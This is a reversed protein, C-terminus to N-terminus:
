QLQSIDHEVMEKVLESFSIRPSWGLKEKAKSTDGLLCDIEAPYSTSPHVEVYDEWNTISICNFAERLFEEVSYIRDSAIVYDDPKDQQLMLFMANVAESSHLWNRRTKIGGLKLKEVKDQRIIREEHTGLQRLYYTKSHVYAVYKTIKRGVFTEEERESSCDYLIGSCIFLKHEDRYIHALHYASLKAVGYLSQPIFKTNEDQYRYPYEDDKMIEDYSVGYQQSSCDQYIKSSPSYRKVAEFVNLVGKIAVDVTYYSISSLNYIEDPKYKSIVDTVNWCDTIYGESITFNKDSFLHQIRSDSSPYVPRAIGIVQYGKQLLLESLYSGNQGTVGFILATKM